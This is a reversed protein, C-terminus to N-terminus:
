GLGWDKTYSATYALAAQEIQRRNHSELRQKVITSWSAMQENNNADIANRLSDVAFTLAQSAAPKGDRKEKKLQRLVTVYLNAAKAQEKTTNVKDIM